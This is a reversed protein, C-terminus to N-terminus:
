KIMGTSELDGSSAKPVWNLPVTVGLTELMKLKSIGGDSAPLVQLRTKKNGLFASRSVEDKLKLPSPLILKALNAMGAELEVVNLLAGETARSRPSIVTEGPLEYTTEVKEHGAPLFTAKSICFAPEVLSLKKSSKM